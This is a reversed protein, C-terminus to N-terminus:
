SSSAAPLPRQLHKFFGRVEFKHRWVVMIFTLLFLSKFLHGLITQLECDPRIPYYFVLAAFLILIPFNRGQKGFYNLIMSYLFGLCFMFICGGVPGFNIYADGLSSLGMSTGASVGIGSYKIFITRDGARLKNPALFRPLIAAELIQKMEEGNQYPVVKPVRQMINTIIFGQNIRVNSLALSYFNFLGGQESKQEALQAFVAAGADGQKLSDRYSGKLLQITVAMVLFAFGGILKLRVNFKYRIAFVAITFIMWTLLDHFMGAGLSSSIVSGMVVMIPLPKLTKTGLILLFLGIFKFGGLLYLVFAFESAFFGSVVSTLFGMVIFIYPLKPNAAVFLNLKERDVFEGKLRGANVHLALIFMVVAPIAYAFYDASPIQMVYKFYQYKDLGGYAFTPGIFFQICMFSGLLYRVPLLTGISNFLLMFQFLTILMALYSPWDINFGVFRIVIALALFVSWNLNTKFLSQM